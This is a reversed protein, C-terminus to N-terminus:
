EIPAFDWEYSNADMQWTYSGRLHGDTEAQLTGSGMYLWSHQQAGPEMTEETCVMGDTGPCCLTYNHAPIPTNSNLTGGVNYEVPSTDPVLGLYGDGVQINYTDTFSAPTGVCVGVSTYVTQTVTGSVSNFGLAGNMNLDPDYEFTVEADVEWVKQSSMPFMMVGHTTGQYKGIYDYTGKNGETEAARVVWLKEMVDEQLKYRGDLTETVNIEISNSDFNRWTTQYGADAFPQYGHDTFFQLDKATATNLYFAKAGAFQFEKHTYPDAYVTGDPGSVSDANMETFALTLGSSTQVQKARIALVNAQASTITVVTAGADGLKRACHFQYGGPGVGASVSDSTGFECLGLSEKTSREFVEVMSVTVPGCVQVEGVTQCGPDPVVFQTTFLGGGGSGGGNDGSGGGGGCGSLILMGAVAVGVLTKM